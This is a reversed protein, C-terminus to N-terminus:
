LRKPLGPCVSQMSRKLPRAPLDAQNSVLEVYREKFFARLEEITKAAGRLRTMIVEYGRDGQGWFANCFDYSPDTLDAHQPEGSAGHYLQGLSPAPSHSPDLGAHSPPNALSSPNPADAM